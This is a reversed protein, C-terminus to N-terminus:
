RDFMKGFIILSVILCTYIKRHSALEDVVIMGHTQIQTSPTKFKIYTLIGSPCILTISNFENFIDSTLEINQASSFAHYLDEVGNKTINILTSCCYDAGYRKCVSDSGAICYDQGANVITALM